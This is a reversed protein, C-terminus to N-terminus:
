MEVSLKEDIDIDIPVQAPHNANHDYLTSMYPHELAETVSIRKSPDF